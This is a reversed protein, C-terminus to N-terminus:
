WPWVKYRPLVRFGLCKVEEEEEPMSVLCIKLCGKEM